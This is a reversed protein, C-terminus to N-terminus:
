CAASTGDQAPAVDGGGGGAKGNAAAKEYGRGVTLMIEAYEQGTHEHRVAHVAAIRRDQKWLGDSLAKLCNDLDIRAAKRWYVHVFLEAEQGAELADPIGQVNALLRVMRKFNSYKPDFANAASARYGYLPGDIKLHYQSLRPSGERAPTPGQASSEGGAKCGHFARPKGGEEGTGRREVM